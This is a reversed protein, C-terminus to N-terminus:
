RIKSDRPANVIHIRSFDNVIRRLILAAAGKRRHTRKTYIDKIEWLESGRKEPVVKAYSIMVGKETAYFLEYAGKEMQKDEYESTFLDPNTVAAMEKILRRREQPLINKTDKIVQVLFSQPRRETLFGYIDEM